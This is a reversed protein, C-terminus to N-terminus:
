QFFNVLRDNGLSLLASFISSINLSIPGVRDKEDNFQFQFGHLAVFSVFESLIAVSMSSSIQKRNLLDWEPSLQSM